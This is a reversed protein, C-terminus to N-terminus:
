KAPPEPCTGGSKTQTRSDQNGDVHITDTSKYFTLTKGITERCDAGIQELIRVPAGLMVYREDATFYTLRAGTAWRAEGRLLVDDYAEARELSRGTPSLYLQIRRATVDGQPGIVRANKTYTAVRGAEEYVLDDATAISTSREVVGTRANTQELPRLSRVSGQATLNGTAEDLTVVDGQVSTERQWLRANGTYVAQEKATVYDLRDGTVNVPADDALLSPRRPADSSDDAKARLESRVDTVAVLSHDDLAIDISDAEVRTRADTVSARRGSAAPGSLALTGQAIDYAAAGADASLTGDEIRIRGAFRAHTVDGFGPELTTALSDARITRAATGAQAGRSERFVVAGSFTAASLGGGDSGAAEMSDAGIRRM